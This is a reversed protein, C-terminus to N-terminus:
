SRSGDSGALWVAQAAADTQLTKGLSPFYLSSPDNSHLSSLPSYQSSDAGVM